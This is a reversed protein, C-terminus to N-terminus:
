FHEEWLGRFTYKPGFGEDFFEGKPAADYLAQDYPANMEKFHMNTVKALVDRPVFGVCKDLLRYPMSVAMETNIMFAIGLMDNGAPIIYEHQTAMDVEFSIPLIIVSRFYEDEEDCGDILMLAYRNAIVDKGDVDFHKLEWISGAIIDEVKATEEIKPAYASIFRAVSDKNTELANVLAWAVRRNEEGNTEGNFFSSLLEEPIYDKEYQFM